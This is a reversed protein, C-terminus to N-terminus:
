RRSSVLPPHPINAKWASLMVHQCLGRPKKGANRIAAFDVKMMMPTIMLWILVAIPINIQSGKGFELSRFTETLARSLKGLAIGAAMCVVVWLSLYRECASLRKKQPTLDFGATDNM